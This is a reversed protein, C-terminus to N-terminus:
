NPHEADHILLTVDDGEQLGFYRTLNVSAFLEVLGPMPPVEARRVLVDQKKAGASATARFYLYRKRASPIGQYPGSPYIIQAGLEIVAPPCNLLTDVAAHDAVRLNLTGPELARWGTAALIRTRREPNLSQIVAEGPAESSANASPRSSRKFFKGRIRM